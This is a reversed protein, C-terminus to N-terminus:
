RSPSRSSSRLRSTATATSTWGPACSRSSSWTAWKKGPAGPADNRRPLLDDRQVPLRALRAGRAATDLVRHGTRARQLPQRLVEAGDQKRLVRELDVGVLYRVGRAVLHGAVPHAHGLRRVVHPLARARADAEDPMRDYMPKTQTELSYGVVKADDVVSGVANFPYAGYISVYFRVIEPLKRLVNGRPLTPDVAVYSPIGDVSSIELDFRGLTATSLYPAMPDTESWVWTTKGNATANSRLVGNAMVTLGAPVTVSFDYTAKDRPNDNVPYWAPSGQPENVVFAGDDTPVWGEISGDPDTVVSPTGAYDITVTITQGSRIGPTPTIVLEHVGVRAFAAGRGNVLLRSIEFGRLDLNFSSLNQTATATIM